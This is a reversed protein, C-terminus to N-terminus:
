RSGKVPWRSRRGCASSSRRAWRFRSRTGGSRRGTNEELPLYPALEVPRSSRSGSARAFSVARLAADRAGEPSLRRDCAFGWAGGALVRVGIGETEGDVVAEVARNRTAISQLRRTLARADAYEAGAAAAADVAALALDRM